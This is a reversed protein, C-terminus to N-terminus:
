LVRNMDSPLLLPDTGKRPPAGWSLDLREHLRSSPFSRQWGPLSSEKRGAVRVRGWSWNRNRCQFGGQGGGQQGGRGKGWPRARGAGVGWRWLAQHGRCRTSLSLCCKIDKNCIVVNGHQSSDQWVGTGEMAFQSSDGAPLLKCVCSASKSINKVSALFSLNDIRAIMFVKFWIRELMQNIILAFGKFFGLGCVCFFGVLFM